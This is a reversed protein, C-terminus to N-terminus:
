PRRALGAPLGTLQVYRFGAAAFWPTYEEASGDGRVVYVNTM